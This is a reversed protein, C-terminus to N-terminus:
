EQQQHQGQQQKQQHEQQQKQRHEQELQQKKMEDEEFGWYQDDYGEVLRKDNRYSRIWSDAGGTLLKVAIANNDGSDMVLNHFKRACRVSRKLTEMCHFVVWTKHTTTIGSNYERRKEKAKELLSTMYTKNFNSEPCFLAGHVMGGIVDDDRADIIITPLNANLIRDALVEKSIYSSQFSNSRPRRQHVLGNSHRHCKSSKKLYKSLFSHHKIKPVPLGKYQCCQQHQPRRNQYIRVM